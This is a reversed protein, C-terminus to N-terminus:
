TELDHKTHHQILAMVQEEYIVKLNQIGVDQVRKILMEKESSLLFFKSIKIIRLRTKHPEPHSGDSTRWLYGWFKSNWRLSFLPWKRRKRQSFVRKRMMV